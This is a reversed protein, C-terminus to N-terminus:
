DDNFTRRVLFFYGAALFLILVGLILSSAGAMGYNFVQTGDRYIRFMLVDTSLMPAGNSIFMVSDFMQMAGIIGTLMVYMTIFRLGPITIYRIEQWRNAGDVKAAEYLSADIGQLGGLWLIASPGIGRWIQYVVIWFLMWFQSYNWVIPEGGLSKILGNIGGGSPDLLAVFVASTATVAAVSPMYVAARFFGRMRYNKNLGLALMFSLVMNLGVCVAGLWAQRWLLTPYTSTAFFNKFHKLGVFEFGNLGNFDTFGLYLGFVLPIVSWLAMYGYFPICIAYARRAERKARKTKYYAKKKKTGVAIDAM